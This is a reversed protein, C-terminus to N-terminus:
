LIIDLTLQTKPLNAITLDCFKLCATFDLIQNSLALFSAKAGCIFIPTNESSFFEGPHLEQCFFRSCVSLDPFIKPDSPRAIFIDTYM